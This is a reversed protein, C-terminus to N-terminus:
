VCFINNVVVIKIDVIFVYIRLVEYDIMCVLLKVLLVEFFVMLIMSIRLLKLVFLISFFFIDVFSM